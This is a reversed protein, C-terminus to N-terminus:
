LKAWQLNNFSALVILTLLDGLNAELREEWDEKRRFGQEKLGEM